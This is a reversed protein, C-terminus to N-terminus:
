RELLRLHPTRGNDAHPPRPRSGETLVQNRIRFSQRENDEDLRLFECTALANGCGGAAPTEIARTSDDCCNKLALVADKTYRGFDVVYVVADWTRQTNQTNQADVRQHLTIVGLTLVTATVLAKM